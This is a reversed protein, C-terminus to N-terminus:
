HDHVSTQRRGIVIELLETFQLLISVPVLRVEPSLCDRHQIIKWSVFRSSSHKCMKVNLHRLLDYFAKQRRGVEIETCIYECTM